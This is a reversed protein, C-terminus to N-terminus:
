VLAVVVRGFLEERLISFHATLTFFLILHHIKKRIINIAVSNRETEDPESLPPEVIKLQCAPLISNIGLPANSSEEIRNYQYQNHKVHLCNCYNWDKRM